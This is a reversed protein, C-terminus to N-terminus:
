LNCGYFVFFFGIMSVLAVSEFATTVSWILEDVIPINLLGRPWRRFWASSWNWSFLSSLVDTWRFISSRLSFEFETWSFASRPSRGAM